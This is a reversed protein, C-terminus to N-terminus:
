TIKIMSTEKLFGIINYIDFIEGLIAGVQGKINHKLIRNELEQM